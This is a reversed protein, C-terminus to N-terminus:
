WVGEPHARALSQMEGLLYSLHESHAGNKGATIFGETSPMTLTAEDLTQRVLTEWDAKLQATNVGVGSRAVSSEFPSTTWFEQTYPMLHNLAAQARAHSEPTGDGFRVLWDHSHRLHYRVEKLSKAAIAALHEDHSAQLKEWVLAMFASYLFNRVITVAYDRNDVAYGVLPGHHPLELLTYNKFDQADRFYALSDETSGDNKLSAAHQYLMRAQGILDLSNNAMAIDEELIPGHGCWEANRQGLVVASDALHLVYDLHAM